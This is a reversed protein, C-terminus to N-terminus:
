IGVARLDNANGGQATKSYMWIALVGAKSNSELNAGGYNATVTVTATSM